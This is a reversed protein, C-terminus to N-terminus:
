ASRIVQSIKYDRIISVVKESKIFICDSPVVQYHPLSWTLEGKWNYWFYNAEKNLILIQLIDMLSQNVISNLKIDRISAPLRDLTKIDVNNSHVLWELFDRDFSNILRNLIDSM